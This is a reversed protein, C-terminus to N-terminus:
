NAGSLNCNVRIQLDSYFFLHRHLRARKSSFNAVAEPPGTQPKSSRDSLHVHHVVVQGCLDKLLALADEICGVLGVGIRRPLVGSRRFLRYRERPSSARRFLPLGTGFGDHSVMDGRSLPGRARQLGREM